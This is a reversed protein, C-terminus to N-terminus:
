LEESSGQLLFPLLSLSAFDAKRIVVGVQEVRICLPQIGFCNEALGIVSASVRVVVDECLEVNKPLFQDIRDELIFNDVCEDRGAALSWRIPISQKWTDLGDRENVEISWIRRRKATQHNIEVHATAVSTPNFATPLIWTRDIM